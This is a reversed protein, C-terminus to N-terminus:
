MAPLGPFRCWEGFASLASAANPLLRHVIPNIAVPLILPLGTEPENDIRYPRAPRPTLRPSVTGPLCLRSRHPM